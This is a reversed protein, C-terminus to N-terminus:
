FYYNLGFGVADSTNFEQSNNKLGSLATGLNIGQYFVNFSFFDERKETVYICIGVGFGFFHQTKSVKQGEVDTLSLKPEMFKTDATISAFDYEPLLQFFYNEDQGVSLVIKPSFGIYVASVNGEFVSTIAGDLDIETQSDIAGVIYGIKFEPHFSKSMKCDTGAILNYFGGTKFQNDISMSLGFFPKIRQANIISFTSFFLTVLLNYLM